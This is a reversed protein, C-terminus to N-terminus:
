VRALIKWTTEKIEETEFRAEEHQKYCCNGSNHRCPCTQEMIQMRITTKNNAADSEYARACLWDLPKEVALYIMLALKISM